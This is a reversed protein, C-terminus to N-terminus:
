KASYKRFVKGLKEELHRRMDAIRETMARQLGAEAIPYPNQGDHQILATNGITCTVVDSLARQAPQAFGKPQGTMRASLGTTKERRDAYGVFKSLTRIAYIWGSRVFAVARLRAGIMRRAEKDLEPGWIMPQGAKKRRANVIIHALSSLDTRYIRKFSVRGKRSVNRQTAIQGLEVAIANADAKETNRIAGVSLALGQGNVVQPYTRSSEQACQNLLRNFEAINTTASVNLM